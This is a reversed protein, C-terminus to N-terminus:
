VPHDVVVGRVEIRAGGDAAATVSPEWGHADAIAAVIGTGLRLEGERSVASEFFGDRQDAPIGPGDDAVYFGPEEALPGVRVRVDAGAHEVCNRFLNEFLQLLRSRDARLKLDAEVSLTADATDVAEWAARATAGLSVVQTDQVEHGQRALTLLDSVLEDIRDLARAATSLHESDNGEREIDVRGLAVALPNRLDHAIVGAFSELREIRTEAREWEMEHRVIRAVLEAFTVEADSFPRDRPASSVFCITGLEDQTTEFPVGLYTELGHVEYAREGAWGQEAAHHLAVTEGREITRKCYSEEYSRVVGAPYDGDPPDTSETAVWYDSDPDIRTVHSNDVGLHERAVAIVRRVTEDADLDEDDALRYIEARAAASDEIDTM